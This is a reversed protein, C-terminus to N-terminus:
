APEVEWREGGGMCRYSEIEHWHKYGEFQKMHNSFLLYLMFLFEKFVWLDSLISQCSVVVVFFRRAIHPSALAPGLRAFLGKKIGYFSWQQRYDKLGKKWEEETAESRKGIWPSPFKLKFEIQWWALWYLAIHPRFRKEGRVYGDSIRSIRSNRAIERTFSECVFTSPTAPLPAWRAYIFMRSSPSHRPIWLSTGPANITM